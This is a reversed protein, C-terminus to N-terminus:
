RGTPVQAISGFCSPTTTSEFSSTYPVLLKVTTSALTIEINIDACGCVPMKQIAFLAASGMLSQQFYSMLRYRTLHEGTKLCYLMVM